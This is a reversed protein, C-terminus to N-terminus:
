MKYLERIKQWGVGMKGLISCVSYKVAFGLLTM